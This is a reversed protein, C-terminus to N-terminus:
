PRVRALAFDYDTGQTSGGLVYKGDGQLAVAYATDFGGFDVLVKGKVGFSTDLGGEQNLRVLAFDHLAGVKITEGAVVIKGGSGNKIPEWVVDTAFSDEGGVISISKKWEPTGNQLDYCAIAFRSLGDKVTQGVVVLRIGGPQGDLGYAFDNGGIDTMLRGNNGFSKDPKGDSNLQTIAFNNDNGEADGSYGAVIIKNNAQVLLASAIDRRHSEPRGFGINVMGDESFTTDLCHSDDLCNAKYRYVAFDYDTANRMWGAVVIKKVVSPNAPDVQIALGGFSGNDIACSGNDVGGFDTIQKGDGSFTPDLEGSPLYRALALQTRGTTTDRTFGAAIIKHDPQVVVACAEDRGGFNTILKGDGDFNTDLAGDIKKYRALFFDYNSMSSDFSSGVAIIRGADIAIAYAKDDREGFGTFDTTVMGDDGFTKDLGGSAALAVSFVLLSMVTTLTSSKWALRKLHRFM